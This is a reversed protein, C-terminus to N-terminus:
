KKRKYLYNIFGPISGSSKILKIMNEESKLSQELRKKVKSSQNKITQQKITTQRFTHIPPFSPMFDYIHIFKEVRVSLPSTWEEPEVLEEYDYDELDIIVLKFPNTKNIALDENNHSQEIDATTNKSYTNGESLSEQFQNTKMHKSPFSSNESENQYNWTSNNSVMNQGYAKNYSPINYDVPNNYYGSPNYARAHHSLNHSMSNHPIGNYAMNNYGVNNYSPPYTNNSYQNSYCNIIPSTRDTITAAPKKKPIFDAKFIKMLDILTTSPRAALMSRSCVSQLSAMLRDEFILIMMELAKASSTEFGASKLIKVVTRELIKRM